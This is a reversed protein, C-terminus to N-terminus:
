PEPVPWNAVVSTPPVPPASLLEVAENYTSGVTIALVGGDPSFVLHFGAQPYDMSALERRTAVHWLKVTSHTGISALTRGDPSFGVDTAEEMHGTLTYLNRGTEVEWLKITADVSGTALLKGDPSFALGSVFDQHGTLPFEKGSELDFLGVVDSEETSIALRRGGPSLVVSRITTKKPGKSKRWHFSGDARGTPVEFIWARGTGSVIFMHGGGPSLGARLFPGDDGGLDLPISGTSTPDDIAQLIMATPAGTFGVLQRCDPTFGIVPPGPRLTGNRAGRMDWLISEVQENTYVQTLLYRGNSSFQPREFLTHRMRATVSRRADGWLRVSEDKGGTALTGGDPSFALCWVEDTHGRAIRDLKFQGTDFYRVARDSAVTVLMTGDPSFAAAWVRLPHELRAPAGGAALDWVCAARSSGVALQRSDPSFAPSWVQEDTPLTRLLEGSALDWLRVDHEGQAVALLRGDPSIAASKGTDPFQGLKQGNEYNWIAIEGEPEWSLLNSDVVVMLPATPSLFAMRGKFTRTKKRTNCDWVFVNGDSGATVLRDGGPTFQATWVAGEHAQLIGIQRAAQPDWIRVTGDQGGSVLERGDPSFATCTVIWKHGTLIARQEGQCRPWLYRWEFGRLDAEGARPLHAELLRRGLGLDGRAIAYSAARMDAAYLNLRTLHESVEARHWQTLVAGAAMSMLMGSVFLTAALARNRRCWRWLKETRGVPRALIQRDDLFRALEEAVALATPYRRGPDKQLCKLCLTELDVPLTPNLVRPPLPDDHLVQQLTEAVTGSAFPARGTVLHYILAGLSYVDSRVGATGLRGSVQEPAMYNPSGLTQGTVTLQPDGVVRKALGFDTIRPQDSADILVNSPKLDRHLVGQEHAHHIARAIQEAYRAARHAPLPGARVLEGLDKGEVFDMTFYPQGEAEGAEHLVVINPHRLGAVTQAEARFRNVAATGAFPGSLTVKLAVERGLSLQRARYVVGMGGRAVEGVLEYDGFLRPFEEGTSEGDMGLGIGLSIQVLCEPCHGSLQDHESLGSGCRRCFEM